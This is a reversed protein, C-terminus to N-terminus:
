KPASSAHFVPKRAVVVYNMTNNGAHRNDDLYSFLRNIARILFARELRTASITHILVQGCLAWKGGDKCIEIEVFGLNELLFRLGYETFRFFDHPEEHLPWYMPGSLIVVGDGELIRFTERLLAQHDAVHEIVQTVLVTGYCGDRFPLNTALCIVDARSESSQVVDCGIHQSVRGDFMPKYPKNGCGIDLLRGHAHVSAKELDSFLSRYHLFSPNALDLQLDRLRGLGKERQNMSQTERLAISRSGGEVSSGTQAL